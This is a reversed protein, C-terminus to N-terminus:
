HVQLQGYLFVQFLQVAFGCCNPFSQNRWQPVPTGDLVNQSIQTLPPLVTM